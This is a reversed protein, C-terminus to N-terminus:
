SPAPVLPTGSFNDLYGTPSTFSTTYIGEFWSYADIRSGFNTQTNDSFGEKREHPVGKTAGGVVIAGSDRFDTHNRSLVNRFTIGDTSFPTDLDSAGNGAVEVVTIGLASALRLADFYRGYVEVPCYSMGSTATHAQIQAEILMIEGFEMNHIAVFIADLIGETSNLNVQSVRGRAKPAIGIGGIANDVM